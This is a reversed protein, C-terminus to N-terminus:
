GETISCRHAWHHSAKTLRLIQVIRRWRWQSGTRCRIVNLIAMRINLHRWSMGGCYKCIYQLGTDAQWDDDDTIPGIWDLQETCKSLSCHNFNRRGHVEHMSCGGQQVATMPCAQSTGVYVSSKKTWETAASLLLLSLKGRHAVYNQLSAQPIKCFKQPFSPALSLGPVLSLGDLLHWNIQAIISLAIHM